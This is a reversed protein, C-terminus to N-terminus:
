TANHDRLMSQMAVLHVHIAKLCKDAQSTLALNSYSYNLEKSVQITSDTDNGIIFVLQM